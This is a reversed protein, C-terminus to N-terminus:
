GGEGVHLPHQARPPRVLCGRRRQERAFEDLAGRRITGWQAFEPDSSRDLILNEAVSFGGVLGDIKRDEPVFGVGADLVHRVSKGRLSAGDLTITGTVKKQLGIIAETLETQGNGQVGAIALIEGERVEFSVNNVVIQNRVDIVSLNEVVLGAAGASRGRTHADVLDAAASSGEGLGVRLAAGGLLTACGLRFAREAAAAKWHQGGGRDPGEGLGPLDAAGAGIVAGSPDVVGGVVAEQALLDGPDDGQLVLEAQVHQHVALGLAASGTACANETRMFPVGALEPTLVTLDDEFFPSHLANVRIFVALHPAAAILDRAADRPVAGGLAGSPRAASSARFNASTM